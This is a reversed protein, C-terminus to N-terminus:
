NKSEIVRAPHTFVTARTERVFACLTMNCKDAVEIALSTPASVAAILEIGARACKSVMELSLRSTLAAGCGATGIGKMLCKGVAKDLANHRGTDEAFSVIEGGKDFIAAAHTGGCMEFLEQKERLGVSVLRLQGAEITLTNGVEPLAAIRKNLDESGCLGCSSVIMLNRGPDDIRPIERKLRVRITSHDDGCEKFTKIDELGDIVGESFLFGAVLAKKDIPTCLLTYTEIGEVDIMLPAEQIICVKETEPRGASDETSIRDAQIYKVAEHRNKPKEM